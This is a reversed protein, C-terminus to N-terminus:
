KCYKAETPTVKLIYRGIVGIFMLALGIGCRLLSDSDSMTGTDMAGASLLCLIIGAGILIGNFMRILLRKDM